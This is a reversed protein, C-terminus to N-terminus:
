STGGILHVSDQAAHSEIEFLQRTQGVVEKHTAPCRGGAPTPVGRSRDARATTPQNAAGANTEALFTRAGELNVLCRTRCGCTACIRDGGFLDGERHLEHGRRRYKTSFDKAVSRANVTAGLADALMQRSVKCPRDTEHLPAARGM